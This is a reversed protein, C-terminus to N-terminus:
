ILCTGLRKDLCSENVAVCQLVSCCVVRTALTTVKHKISQNRTRSMVSEDIHCTKNGKRSVDLALMDRHKM